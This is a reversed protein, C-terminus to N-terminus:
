QGLFRTRKYMPYFTEAHPKTHKLMFQVHSPFEAPVTYKLVKMGREIARSLTHYYAPLIRGRPQYRPHIYATPCHVDGDDEERLLVWGILRDGHKIGVSLEGTIEEKKVPNLIDPVWEQNDLAQRETEPVALWPMIEFDPPLSYPRFWRTEQLEEVTLEVHLHKLEPETFSFHDLFRGFRRGQVTDIRHQIQVREVNMESACELTTSLLARGAGRNRLNPAVYLHSIFLISEDHDVTGWSVGAPQDEVFAGIRFLKEDSKWLFDDRHNEPLCNVFQHRLFVGLDTTIRVSNNM